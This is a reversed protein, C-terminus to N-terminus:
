LRAELWGLIHERVELKEVENLLEHRGGPWVKLEKDESGIREAFRKTAALDALGDDDGHMVLLPLRMGAAAEITVPHMGVTETYWRATAHEVVLPDEAYARGVEPDKSLASHDLDSPLAFSPVIRSMVKAAAVKWGPLKVKVGLFPSLIVGGRLTGLRDLRAQLTRGLVLGGMSHGLGFQPLPEPAQQAVYRYFAEMDDLYDDFQRIFTRRGGSRGHGRLDVMWCDFGREAFWRLTAVYRGSHEAFGHVWLLRGRAAERPGIRRVFLDTQDRSRIGLEQEQVTSTETMPGMIGM